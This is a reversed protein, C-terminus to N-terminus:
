KRLLRPLLCFRSVASGVHAAGSIASGCAKMDDPEGAGAKFLVQMGAEEPEISEAENHSLGDKCPTFVM